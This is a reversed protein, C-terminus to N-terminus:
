SWNIIQGNGNLSPTPTGPPKGTGNVEYGWLPMNTYGIEFSKGSVRKTHNFTTITKTKGTIKIPQTNMVPFINRGNWFLLNDYLFGGCFTNMLRYYRYVTGTNIYRGLDCIYLAVSRATEPSVAGTASIQINLLLTHNNIYKLNCSAYGLNGTMSPSNAFASMNTITTPDTHKIFCIDTMATSTTWQNYVLTVDNVCSVGLKYANAYTLLNINNCAELTRSASSVDVHYTETGNCFWLHDGNGFMITIDFGSPLEINTGVDADYTTNYIHIYGDPTAPIYAILNTGYLCSSMHWQHLSSSISNGSIDLVVAEKTATLSQVCILGNGNETKYSQSYMNVNTSFELSRTVSLVSTDAEVANLGSMDIANVSNNVNRFAILWKGYTFHQSTFDNSAFTYSRQRDLACIAGGVSICHTTPSEAHARCGTHSLAFVSDPFSQYGNTGNPADLLEFTPVERTPVVNNANSGVIWFHCNKAAAPINNFDPINIWTSQDWYKECAIVSNHGQNISLISNATQINQFLYATQIAGNAWYYIPLCYNTEFGANTYHANNNNVFPQPNDWDDTHYNYSYVAADSITTFTPWKNKDYTDDTISKGFKDAFGTSKFPDESTYATLTFTEPESLYEPNIVIYGPAKCVFGDIYGHEHGKQSWLTFGPAVTTNRIISDIGAQIDEPTLVDNYTRQRGETRDVLVNNRKYTYINSEFMKQYMIANTTIAMHIDNAWNDIIVHEYLSLCMYIYITMTENTKKTIHSKDGNADYIHSHTWLSNYGTGIGYESIMTDTDYNSINTPYTVIGFRSILTIIGTNPQTGPSYMIPYAYDKGTNTNTAALGGFLPTEMRSTTKDFNSVGEGVYLKVSDSLAFSSGTKYIANFGANTMLNMGYKVDTVNGDSDTTEFIYINSVGPRKDKMNSAFKQIHEFLENKNMIRKKRREQWFDM